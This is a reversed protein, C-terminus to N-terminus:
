HMTPQCIERPCVTKNHYKNAKCIYNDLKKQHIHPFLPWSDSYTTLSRTFVQKITSDVHASLSVLEGKICSRGEGKM